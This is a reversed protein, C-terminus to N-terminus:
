SSSLYERIRELETDMQLPFSSLFSTVQDHSDLQSNKLCEPIVTKATFYLIEQCVTLRERGLSLQDQLKKNEVKLNRKENEVATLRNLLHKIEEQLHNSSSLHGKLNHQLTQCLDCVKGKKVSKALPLSSQLIHKETRFAMADKKLANQVKTDHEDYEILRQFFQDQAKSWLVQASRNTDKQDLQDLMDQLTNIFVYEYTGDQKLKDVKSQLARYRDVTLFDLDSTYCEKWLSDRTHRCMVSSSEM